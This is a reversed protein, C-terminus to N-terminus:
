IEIKVLLPYHDSLYIGNESDTWATCKGIQEADSFIYDIKAQRDLRGFDHFSSMIDSTLDSIRPCDFRNAEVICKESPEANMDGCLVLPADAHRSDDSIKDLVRRMGLLRASESIHDLHTNYVRLPKNDDGALLTAYTCIRPCGSQDAYRTGPVDPTESLWFQGLSFLSFRDTRFCIPNAEDRYDAGRGVGVVLYDTLVARLWASIRVTSEQCCIIDPKERRIKELILPTRNFFYNEGDGRVDTRLNFTLVSVEM